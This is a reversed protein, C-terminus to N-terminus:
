RKSLRSRFFKPPQVVFTVPQHNFRPRIHIVDTSTTIWKLRRQPDGCIDAEAHMARVPYIAPKLNRYGRNLDPFINVDDGVARRVMKVIAIDERPDGTVKTQPWSIGSAVVQAAEEAAEPMGWPM